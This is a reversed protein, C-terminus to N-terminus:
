LRRLVGAGLWGLWQRWWPRLKAWDAQVPESDLLDKEHQTRMQAVVEPDQIVIALEWNLSCSLFDFNASGVVVLEDDVVMSKAHLVAKTFEQIKVGSDLLAPYLGERIWDAVGVDSNRPVLIEIEREAASKRMLNLLRRPPVFYPVTLVVDRAARKLTESYLRRIAKRKAFGSGGIVLCDSKGPGTESISYKQPPEIRSGGVKKWTELFFQDCAAAAPGELSIQTDRWADAGVVKRSWPDGLNMGGTFAIRGDVILNKRHNRGLIGSRKRWPAVPRFVFVDAGAERMMDFMEDDADSSGIADYVVRVPIGEKAKAAFARALNWGVEDSLFMYMEMHVYVRASTIAEVKAQYVEDGDFYLKVRNGSTSLAGGEHSMAGLKKMLSHGNKVEM